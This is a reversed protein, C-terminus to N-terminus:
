ENGKETLIRCLHDNMFRRSPELRERVARFQGWMPYLERLEATTCSHIRGWHLRGELGRFIAEVDDFFRQYSLEGAQHVSITVTDRGYAPSLYSDDAGLTGYEVPWIVDGHTTQMLKRIERICEPGRKASLAYEIENFKVDRESPFVRHSWDIQEPIVLHSLAFGDVEPTSPPGTM